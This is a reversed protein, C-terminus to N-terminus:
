FSWGFTVRGYDLKLTTSISPMTGNNRMLVSSIEKTKLIKATFLTIALVEPGTLSVAKNKALETAKNEANSASQTVNYQLSVAESAKMCADHQNGVMGTCVQAIMLEVLM